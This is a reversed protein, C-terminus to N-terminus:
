SRLMITTRYLLLPVSHYARYYPSTPLTPALLFNAIEGGRQHAEVNNPPKGTIDM